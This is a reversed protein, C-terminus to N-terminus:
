GNMTVICCQVTGDHFTRIKFSRVQARRVNRRYIGLSQVEGNAISSDNTSPECALDVPNIPFGYSFWLFVM